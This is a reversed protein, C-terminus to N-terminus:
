KIIIDCGGNKVGKGMQKKENYGSEKKKEINLDSVVSRFGYLDSM